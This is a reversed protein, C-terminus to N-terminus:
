KIRRCVLVGACNGIKTYEGFVNHKKLRNILKDAVLYDEQEDWYKGVGLRCLDLEEQTKFSVDGIVLIGSEELIDFLINEIFRIKENFNLHHIAYTTLAKTPKYKKIEDLMDNKMNYQFTIIDPMKKKAKKLMEESFDLGIIKFGKDYLPQSLTGTGIGIDIIIDNEQLEGKNIVTSLVEYYKEFPYKDIAKLISEDYDGAWKDFYLKNYM